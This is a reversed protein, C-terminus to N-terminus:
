KVVADDTTAPRAGTPCNEAHAQTLGALPLGFLLILLLAKRHSYMELLIGSEEGVGSLTFFGQPRGNEQRIEENRYSPSEIDLTTMVAEFTDATEKGSGM